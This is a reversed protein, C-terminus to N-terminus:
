GEEKKVTIIPVIIALPIFVGLLLPIIEFGSIPYFNYIIITIFFTIILITALTFEKIILKIIEIMRCRCTKVQGGIIINIKLIM